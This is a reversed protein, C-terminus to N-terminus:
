WPECQYTGLNSRHLSPRTPPVTTSPSKNKEGQGKWVKGQQHGYISSQCCYWRWVQDGKTRLFGISLFASEAGPREQFENECSFRQAELFRVSISITRKFLDKFFRFFDWIQSTAAGKFKWSPMWSRMWLRAESPVMKLQWPWRHNMISWPENGINMTLWWILNPNVM